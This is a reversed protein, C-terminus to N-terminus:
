EKSGKVERERGVEEFCWWVGEPKRGTMENRM